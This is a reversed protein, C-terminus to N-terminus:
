KESFLCFCQVMEQENGANQACELTRDPDVILHRSHTHLEELRSSTLRVIIGKTQGRWNYLQGGGGGSM